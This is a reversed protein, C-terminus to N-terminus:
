YRRPSILSHYPPPQKGDSNRSCSWLQRYARFTYYAVLALTVLQLSSLYLGLNTGGYLAVLALLIFEKRVTGLVLLIGSIAPLGLWVVTLFSMANGIPELVGAAFLVQVLASGVIYIPFVVYM